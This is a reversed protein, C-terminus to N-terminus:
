NCDFEGSTSFVRFYCVLKLHNVNLQVIEVLGVDVFVIYFSTKVVAM